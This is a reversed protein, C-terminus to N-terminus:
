KPTICTWPKWSSRRVSEMISGVTHSFQISQKTITRFSSKVFNKKERWVSEPMKKAMPWGSCMDDQVPVQGAKFPEHWESAQTQGLSHKSLLRFFCKLPRLLLNVTSRAFNPAPTNSSNTLRWLSWLATRVCPCFQVCTSLVVGLPQSVWCAYIGCINTSHYLPLCLECVKQYWRM